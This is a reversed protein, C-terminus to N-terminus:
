MFDVEQSMLFHYLGLEPSCGLLDGDLFVIQTLAHISDNDMILTKATLNALVLLAWDQSNNAKVHLYEVYSLQYERGEIKPISGYLKM